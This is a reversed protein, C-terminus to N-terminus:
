ITCCVTPLPRRWFLKSAKHRAPRQAAGGLHRALACTTGARARVVGGSSARRVTRAAASTSRAEISDHAPVARLRCVAHAPHASRDSACCREHRLGHDGRGGPDSRVSPVHGSRLWCVPLAGFAAMALKVNLVLCIATAALLGLFFGSISLVNHQAQSPRRVRCSHTAPALDGM